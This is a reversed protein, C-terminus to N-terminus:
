KKFSNICWKRFRNLFAASEARTLPSKPMFYSVPTQVGAEPIYDENVVVNGDEDFKTIDFGNVLYEGPSYKEDEMDLVSKTWWFEPDGGELSVVEDTAGVVMSKDYGVDAFRVSATKNYVFRVETDVPLPVMFLITHDDFETYHTGLTQLVGGKYVKLSGGLHFRSTLSFVRQGDYSFSTDDFHASPVPSDTFRQYFSRRLKEILHFAEARTMHANPFFRNNFAVAGTPASARFTGGRIMVAGNELSAYQFTISVGNLNFPLFLKGSLPSVCYVDQRDGICAAAVDDEATSLWVADAITLRKLKRGFAFCYEQFQRSFPDYYYTAGYDLTKQPYSYGANLNPRGFRDVEPKGISVFAVTSGGKIGYYFEVDTKGEDNTYLAKYITQVGDIYVYLPNDVSPEVLVGLHFYSQKDIATQEEYLYPAGEQFTSYPISSILPTGDELFTNAAETIDEYFWDRETVDVFTKM